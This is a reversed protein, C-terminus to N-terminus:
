KFSLSVANYMCLVRWSAKLFLAMTLMDKEGNFHLSVKTTLHHANLVGKWLNCLYFHSPLERSQWCSLHLVHRSTVCRVRYLDIFEAPSNWCATSRRSTPTELAWLRACAPARQHTLFQQSLVSIFLVVEQPDCHSVFIPRSCCSVFWVSTWDTSLGTRGSIPSPSTCPVVVFLLPVYILINLSLRPVEECAMM